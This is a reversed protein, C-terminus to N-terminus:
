DRSYRVLRDNQGCYARVDNCLRHLQKAKNCDDPSLQGLEFAISVPLKLRGLQVRISRHGTMNLDPAAMRTPMKIGKAAFFKVLPRLEEASKSAEHGAGLIEQIRYLWFDVPMDPSDLIARIEETM